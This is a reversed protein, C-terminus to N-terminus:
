KKAAPAGALIWQVVIKLDNDNIASAPMAATGWVGSGGKKVKSFLLDAAKANGKYKTAVDQYSPGVVKHDVAHCALCANKQAIDLAKAADVAAFLPTSLIGTYALTSLLATKLLSIKM